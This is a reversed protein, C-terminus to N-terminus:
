ADVDAVTVVEVLKLNADECALTVDLKSFLLSDTLWHTVSLLLCHYGIFIATQLFFTHESQHHDLTWVKITGLHDGLPGLATTLHEWITGKPGFTNARTELNTRSDWFHGRFPESCGLLAWTVGLNYWTCTVGLSNNSSWDQTLIAKLSWETNNQFVLLYHLYGFWYSM